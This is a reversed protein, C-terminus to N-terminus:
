QIQHTTKIAPPGYPTKAPRSADRPRAVNERPSSLILSSYSSRDSRLVICISLTRSHSICNLPKYLISTLKPRTQMYRKKRGQGNNVVNNNLMTDIHPHPHRVSHTTVKPSHEQCISKRMNWEMAYVLLILGSHPNRSWFHSGGGLGCDKDCIEFSWSISNCFLESYVPDREYRAVHNM